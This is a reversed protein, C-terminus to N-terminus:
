TELFDLAHLQLSPKAMLLAHQGQSTEWGFGLVSKKGEDWPKHGAQLEMEWSAVDRAELPVQVHVCM